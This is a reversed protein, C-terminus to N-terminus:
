NPPQRSFKKRRPRQWQNSISGIASDSLGSPLGILRLTGDGNTLTRREWRRSVNGPTHAYALTKDCVVLFLFTSTRLNNIKWFWIESKEELVCSQSLAQDRRLHPQACSACVAITKSGTQFTKTTTYFPYIFSFIYGLSRVSSSHLPDFIHDWGGFATSSRTGQTHPGYEIGDKIDGFTPDLPTHQGAIEGLPLTDVMVQSGPLELPHPDSDVICETRADSFFLLPVFMGRRSTQLTLRDLGRLYASCFSPKVVALFDLSAFAM